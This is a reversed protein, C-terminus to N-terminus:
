LHIINPSHFELHIINPSHYELNIILIKFPHIFPSYATILVYIYFYFEGVREVGLKLCAALFHDVNKLCKSM